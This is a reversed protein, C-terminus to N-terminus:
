RTWPLHTGRRHARDQYDAEELERYKAEVKRMLGDLENFELECETLLFQEAIAAKERSDIRNVMAELKEISFRKM